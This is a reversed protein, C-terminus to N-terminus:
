KGWMRTPMIRYVSVRPEDVLSIKAQKYLDKMIRSDSWSRWFEVDHWSTISLIISDDHEGVLFEGSVFGPYQTANTRIKLLIPEIDADVNLKLGEIVKIM